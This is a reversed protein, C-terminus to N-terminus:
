RAPRRAGEPTAVPIRYYPDYGRPMLLKQPAPPQPAPASTHAVALTVAIITLGAVLAAVRVLRRATTTTRSSM